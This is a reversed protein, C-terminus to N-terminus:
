LGGLAVALTASVLTLAAALALMAAALELEPRARRLIAQTLQASEVVAISYALLTVWGSPDLLISLLVPLLGEARMFAISKALLGLSSLTFVAFLPGLFPTGSALVSGVGSAFIRYVARDRSAADTVLSRLEEEYKVYQAYVEKLMPAPAPLSASVVVIAVLAAMVAPYLKLRWVLRRLERM